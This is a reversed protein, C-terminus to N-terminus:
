RGGAVSPVSGHNVARTWEPLTAALMRNLGRDHGRSLECELLALLDDSLRLGSLRGLGHQFSQQRAAPLFLFRGISDFRNQELVQGLM